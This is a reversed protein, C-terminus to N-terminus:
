IEFVTLSYDYYLLHSLCAFKSFPCRSTQSHLYTLKSRYFLSFLKDYYPLYIAHPTHTFVKGTQQNFRLESPVDNKRSTLNIVPALITGQPKRQLAGLVFLVTMKSFLGAM